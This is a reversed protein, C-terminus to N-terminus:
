NKNDENVIEEFQQLLDRRVHAKLAKVEEETWLSIPSKGEFLKSKEVRVWLNPGDEKMELIRPM